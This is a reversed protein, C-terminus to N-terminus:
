QALHISLTYNQDNVKAEIREGQRINDTKQTNKDVYLRLLDADFDRVLYYDSEVHLVEGKITRIGKVAVEDTKMLDQRGAHKDAELDDAFNDIALAANSLGLCLVFGCSMGVIIKTISVM